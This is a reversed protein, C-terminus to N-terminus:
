GQHLSLEAADARAMRRKHGRSDSGTAAARALLPVLGELRASWRLAGLSAAAALKRLETPPRGLLDLLAAAFEERSRAVLCAGGVEDPLGDAVQPTVVCPLGAAAAELVKNQIGRAVQLPAAAIAASWLHPRVDPVTGTVEVGSEENALALVDPSPSAGVLRLRADPREARVLPWVQRALWVAGQVNPEYNMVGCFVVTSSPESLPPPAFADLDVGNEVVHVPAGPALALLAAREKENVVLTACAKRMAVIEFRALLRAERRYIWRMPLRSADAIAQWKASDADIMDLVWPIGDLGPLFAFRAMSSCFALVVDPRRRSVLSALAPPLYPSDLLLHTLPTSGLLSAAGRCANRFRSVRAIVVERAIGALDNAHSEEERDHVLAAVDVQATRSVERIIHYVRIRDGRNPAYPLRQSLVLVRM